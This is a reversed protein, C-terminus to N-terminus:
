LDGRPLPQQSAQVAPGSGTTGPEGPYEYAPRPGSQLHAMVPVSVSALYSEHKQPQAAGAPNQAPAAMAPQQPASARVAVAPQQPASARVAVPLAAPLVAGAADEVAATTAPPGIPPAAIMPQAGGKGSFSATNKSYQVLKEKITEDFLSKWDRQDRGSNSEALLEACRKFSGDLGGAKLFPSAENDRSGGRREAYVQSFDGEKQGGGTENSWFQMRINGMTTPVLVPDSLHKRVSDWRKQRRWKGPKTSDKPQTWKFLTRKYIPGTPGDYRKVRVTRVDGGQKNDDGQVARASMLTERALFFHPKEFHLVEGLLEIMAAESKPNEAFKLQETPTAQDEKTGSCGFDVNKGIREFTSNLIDAICNGKEEIDPEPSSLCILFPFGITRSSGAKGARDKGSLDLRFSAHGDGDYTLSLGTHERIKPDRAICFLLGAVAPGAPKPLKDKSVPLKTIDAATIASRQV